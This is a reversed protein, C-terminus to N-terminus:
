INRKEKPQRAAKIAQFAGIDETKEYIAAREIPPLNNRKAFKYEFRALPIEEYLTFHEKLTQILKDGKDTNITILSTGKGDNLEEKYKEIAWFDGMTIDGSRDLTCFECKYCCERFIQKAIFAGFYLGNEPKEHYSSGDTFEVTANAWWMRRKDRFTLSKINKGNSIDSAYSKWLKPSPVGHCLFDAVFLNEYDKGLYSKLGSVQCPCGVFLATRGNVLVQKLEAYVRRIESQLYKSVKLPELEERYEIVTHHVSTYDESFRAGCVVGNNALVYEAIISFLGGSSSTIRLDDKGQMAWLSRVRSLGKDGSLCPCASICKCCKVCNAADIVPFDFGESNPHM